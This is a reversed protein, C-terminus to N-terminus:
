KEDEPPEYYEKYKLIIIRQENMANRINAINIALSEYGEDTLGFLVLDTNSQDLMAWIEDANEPTIVVWQVDRMALPQPMELNLRTREQPKVVVEVPKVDEGFLSFSTCGSLLLLSTILILSRLVNM